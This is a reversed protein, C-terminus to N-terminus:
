ALNRCRITNFGLAKGSQRINIPSVRWLTTMNVNQSLREFSSMYKLENMSLIILDVVPLIKSVYFVPKNYQLSRFTMVSYLLVYVFPLVAPTTHGRYRVQQGVVCVHLSESLQLNYIYIPTATVPSGGRAAAPGKHEAM